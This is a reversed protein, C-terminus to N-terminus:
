FYVLYVFMSKVDAYVATLRSLQNKVEVPRPTKNGIGLKSNFMFKISGGPFDSECSPYFSLLCLWSCCHLVCIHYCMFRSMLLWRPPLLWHSWIFKAPINRKLLCKKKVKSIKKNSLQRFQHIFNYKTHTLVFTSPDDKQSLLSFLPTCQLLIFKLFFFISLTLFLLLANRSDAYQRHQVSWWCFLVFFLVFVVVPM